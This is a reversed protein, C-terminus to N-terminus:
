NNPKVVKIEKKSLPAFLGGIKDKHMRESVEVKDPVQIDNDELSVGTLKVKSKKFYKM